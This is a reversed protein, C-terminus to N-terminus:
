QDKFNVHIINDEKLSLTALDGILGELPNTQINYVEGDFVIEFGRLYHDLIRVTEKFFDAAFQYSILNQELSEVYEETFRSEVSESSNSEQSTGTNM